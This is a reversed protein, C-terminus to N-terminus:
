EFAYLEPAGDWLCLDQLTCEQNLGAGAPMGTQSIGKIASKVLADASRAFGAM